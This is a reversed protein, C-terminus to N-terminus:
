RVVRLRPRLLTLCLALLLGGPGAECGVRLDWPGRPQACTREISFTRRDEGAANNVAATVEVPGTGEVTWRLIGTLPDLTMGPPGSVLRWSLPADGTAALPEELQGCGVSTPVGTIRPGVVLGSPTVVVVASPPSFAGQNGLRDIGRVRWTWTGAPPADVFPSATAPLVQQAGGAEDRVLEVSALSSLADIPPAWRVVVGGDLPEVQPASAIPGTRDVVVTTSPSSYPSWNDARDKARVEFSWRGEELTGADLSTLPTTVYLEAGTTGNMLHVKYLEIGALNDRSATWALQVPASRTELPALALGGPTEPETADVVLPASERSWRGVADGSIAGVRAVFVGERQIVHTSIWRYPWDRGAQATDVHHWQGGDANRVTFTLVSVGADRAWGPDYGLQDGWNNTYAQDWAPAPPVPVSDRGTITVARLEPPDSTDSSTNDALDVAEIGVFWTGEGLWTGFPLGPQRLGTQAFWPGGPARAVLLHYGATASRADTVPQASVTLAGPSLSPGADFGPPWPPPTTDINFCAEPGWASAEDRTNIYRARWCWGADDESFSVWSSLGHRPGADVTLQETWSGPDRRLQVILTSLPVGADDSYGRTEMWTGSSVWDGAGPQQPEPAFPVALTLHLVFALM